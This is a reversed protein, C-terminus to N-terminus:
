ARGSVRDFALVTAGALLLAGGGYAAFFAAYPERTLSETLDGSPWPRCELILSAPQLVGELWRPPTALTDALWAGGILIALLVASTFLFAGRLTRARLSAWAALAYSFALFTASVSGYVISAGPFGWVTFLFVTLAWFALAGISEPAVLGAALKARVIQGATVPTSLLMEIRRGEKEPAFLGAGTAVAVLVFFSAIFLFMGPSRGESAGWLCLLVFGFLIFFALRARSSVKGGARTALEKWLLARSDPVGKELTFRPRGERLAKSYYTGETAFGRDIPDPRPPATVRKEIRSAAARALGWGVLFSFSTAGVWGFELWPSGSSVFRLGHAAGITAYLPNLWCCAVMGAQGALCAPITPLLTYAVLAFVSMVIARTPSGYMSSYRLSFGAGLAAWALTLATSWAVEWPGAGGLYVSIATVPIGCLVLSAAQVMAAKWKGAAIARASLPTLLLLGLTGSRAERSIQDSAAAVAALTVFTMQLWLLAEFLSRGLKAYESPSIRMGAGAGERWFGFLVAAVLGLYLVRGVYTPWRRSSASLEKIAVPDAFRM